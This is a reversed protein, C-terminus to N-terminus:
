MVPPKVQFQIGCKKQISAQEIAVMQGKMQALEAATSGGVEQEV